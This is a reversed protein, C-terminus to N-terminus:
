EQAVIISLPQLVGRQWLGEIEVAGFYVSMDPARALQQLLAQDRIPATLKIQLSDPVPVGGAGVDEVLIASDASALLDGRIRLVENEYLTADAFLTPLIVEQATLATLSNPTLQYRYREDPGFQGPGELQGHSQVIGYQVPGSDQLTVGILTDDLSGLWIQHTADQNLLRPQADDSFSLGDTLMAGDPDVYLYGIVTVAGSAPTSALLDRVSFVDSTAPLSRVSPAPTGGCATLFFLLVIFWRRMLTAIDKDALRLLSRQESNLENRSWQVM